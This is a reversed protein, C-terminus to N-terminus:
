NHLDVRFKQGRSDWREFDSLTIPDSVSRNAAESKRNSNWPLRPGTEYRKGSLPCYKSIKGGRVNLAGM